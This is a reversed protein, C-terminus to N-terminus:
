GAVNCVLAMASNACKTSLSALKGAVRVFSEEGQPAKYVRLTPLRRASPETRENSRLSSLIRSGVGDESPAPTLRGCGTQTIM